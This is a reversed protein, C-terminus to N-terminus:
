APEWERAREVARKWGEYRADADDRSTAPEFTADASWTAAVEDPTSWVGEALGAMFASGLATTELMAPRRVPVGLQDAQFRCLLDM